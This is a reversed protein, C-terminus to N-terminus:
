FYFFDSFLARLKNELMRKCERRQKETHLLLPASLDCTIYTFCETGRKALLLTFVLDHPHLVVACHQAQNPCTNEGTSLFFM